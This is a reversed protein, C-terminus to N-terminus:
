LGLQERQSAPIEINVVALVKKMVDNEDFLITIAKNETVTTYAAQTYQWTARSGGEITIKNAAKSGLISCAQDYTTSGAMLMHINDEKFNNGVSACSSALLAGVIILVHLMTKM